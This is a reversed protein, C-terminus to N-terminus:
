VATLHPETKPFSSQNQIPKSDSAGVELGETQPLVQNKVTQSGQEEQKICFLAEAHPPLGM